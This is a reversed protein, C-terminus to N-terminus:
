KVRRIIKASPTLYEVMDRNTEGLDNPACKWYNKAMMRLDNHDAMEAPDDFQWCFSELMSFWYLNCKTVHGQPEAVYVFDDYGGALECNSPNDCLFVAQARPVASSPRYEELVQECFKHAKIELPDMHSGHVYGEKQPTLVTGVPFNKRTGHYLVLGQADEFIEHARM